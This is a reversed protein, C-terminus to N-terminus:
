GHRGLVLGVDTREERSHLPDSVLDLGGFSGSADQRIEAIVLVRLVEVDVHVGALLQALPDSRRNRLGVTWRSEIVSSRPRLNVLQDSDTQGTSRAFGATRRIQQDLLRNAYTGGDLSRGPVPLNVPVNSPIAVAAIPTGSVLKSLDARLTTAAKLSLTVETRAHV